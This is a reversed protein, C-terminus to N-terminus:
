RKWKLENKFKKAFLIQSKRIVLMLSRHITKLIIKVICIPRGIIWGIWFQATETIPVVAIHYAAAGFFMACAMYGRPIGSLSQGASYGQLLIAAVAFGILDLAFAWLNYKKLFVCFGSHIFAILLGLGLCRLMDYLIQQPLLSVAM